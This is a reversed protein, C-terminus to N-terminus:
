KGKFNDKGFDNLTTIFGQDKGYKLQARGARLMKIIANKLNANRGEQSNEDNRTRSQLHKLEGKKYNLQSIDADHGIKATYINKKL